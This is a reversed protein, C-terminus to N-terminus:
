LIAREGCRPVSRRIEGGSTSRVVTETFANISAYRTFFHEMVAGFLFASLGQFALEDVQMTIELGRGFTIPGPWPLRRVVPQVTASRLGEIQKKIAADGTAAFLELMQRLAAAGERQDVDTLSLYNLSLLSIFQWAVNAERLASYPKSPGKVCRVATVPAASALTFDTKAAGLPMHLALDRNTCLATVALQRLDSSFPAEKPDVLAVFVESGVYSSRYGTRKQNASPLRPERQVTFYAQHESNETHFAAYFPRFPKESQTGIGYGTVSELGHVEFDMPRTRDPVVHYEHDGPTLHIRDCRKPFLNIAPVCHLRFTQADVISELAPDGRGFLLAIELETGGSRRVAAALGNLEVFLFRQPFAFYEQLLRYGQFGRLNTPLMAQEDAFGLPRV